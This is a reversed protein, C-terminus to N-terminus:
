PTCSKGFNRTAAILDSGDVTNDANIDADSNWRPHAASGPYLYSPGYSGFARAIIILDSGDVTGDGNIDGLIRVKIKGDSLTNDAPNNDATIAAVATLTYNHCYPAGLTNWVFLVTKTEGVLLAVNQTGIIKNDTINYYLTLTVTESFDGNNKVTVNINATHGQFVWTRDSAINTVAVDHWLVQVEGDVFVNNATNIEGPVTSAVAKITCNGRLMGTTNWYFTLTTNWNPLLNVVNQSGIATGDYYATVTFNEYDTGANKATVTITVTQGAVVTMPSVAVDVVAVDHLINLWPIFSVYDTVNDGLGTPNLTSHYPGSQDGWWNFRADGESPGVANDLGMNNGAIDNYHIQAGPACGATRMYIGWDANSIDNNIVTADEAANAGIFDMGYSATSGIAGTITNSKVLPAITGGGGGGGNWFGIGRRYSKLDNIMNGQIVVNTFKADGLEWAAGPTSFSIASSRHAYDFPGGTGMNFTNYSVNQLTTIDVGDYTMAFIADSSPGISAELNNYSIETKGTHKELVINNAGTQTINNYSFVINEQGSQAYFGYDQTDSTNNTGCIANDVITFTPSATMCQTLIGERDHAVNWVNQITFGEFLVDGLANITVLAFSSGLAAVLGTGDISTQTSGAVGIVSLQKNVTVQENYTGPHVWITDASAAEDIAEQITGTPNVNYTRPITEYTAGLWPSYDVYDGADNGTGGPNTATQNPGSADGWWNFRADFTVNNNNLDSNVWIGYRNGHINNYYANSLANATVEIAEFNDHIDNNKILVVSSPLDYWGKWIDIIIAASSWLPNPNTNDCDLIENNTIQAASSGSYDEIEIGYNVQNDLSYTQGTITNSEITLTANNSYAGIRGFNTVVCRKIAVNSMDWAAIAASYMDGATNPSATCDLIAGSSNEYIIAYSKTGAPTGLGQGEVDLGELMVNDTDEVFITAQRSGYNTSRTQGGKVMPTSAAEIDLSKNIYLAENYTGNHVMITDGSSSTDIAAQITTFDANPCEVRDDDVTWVVGSSVKVEDITGNFFRPYGFEPLYCGIRLTANSAYITGPPYTRVKDKVGNIYIAMHTSNSTAAVHTWANATINTASMMAYYHNGDYSLAFYIENLYTSLYYASSLSTHNYKSVIVQYGTLSRPYIWAEITIKGSIDLSASDPVEVYNSLGNLNLAKGYKGVTWGAGYITGDNGNGSSDHAVTGTGEDFHWLAGPYSSGSAKVPAIQMMIMPMFSTLLLVLMFLVAIKNKM